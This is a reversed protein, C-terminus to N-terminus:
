RAVPHVPMLAHRKVTGDSAQEEYWWVEGTVTKARGFFKTGWENMLEPQRKDPKM